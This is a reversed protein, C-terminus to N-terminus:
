SFLLREVLGTGDTLLAYRAILQELDQTGDLEQVFRGESEGLRFFSGTTREELVWAPGDRFSRREIQCSRRLQPREPLSMPNM